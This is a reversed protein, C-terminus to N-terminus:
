QVEDEKWDNSLGGLMPHYMEDGAHQTFEVNLTGPKLELMEVCCDILTKALEARTEAPRGRRIDCMLLAALFPDEDTCRWVGGEGLERITITIRKVDAKMIDAYITGMRKALQQKVSVPYRKTVDLQLYPM